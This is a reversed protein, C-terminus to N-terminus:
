EILPDDDVDEAGDVAEKQESREIGYRNKMIEFAAREAEAQAAGGDDLLFTRVFNIIASWHESEYWVRYLDRIPPDNHMEALLRRVARGSCEGRRLKDLSDFLLAFGPFFCGGIERRVRRTPEWDVNRLKRYTLLALSVRMKQFDSEERDYSQDRWFRDGRWDDLCEPKAPDYYSFFEALLEAGAQLDGDDSGDLRAAPDFGGGATSSLAKRSDPSASSASVTSSALAKSSAGNAHLRQKSSCPTTPGVKGQSKSAKDYGQREDDGLVSNVYDYWGDKSRDARELSKQAPRVKMRRKEVRFNWGLYDFGDACDYATGHTQFGLAALQGTTEKLVQEAQSRSECLFLLDDIYRWYAPALSTVTRDFPTLCHNFLLASSFYGTSMGVSFIKQLFIRPQRGIDLRSVTRAILAGTVTPYARAIDLVVAWAPQTGASVARIERVVAKQGKGRRCSCVPLLLDNLADLRAACAADGVRDKLNLVSYTRKKGHKDRGEFTCPQEPVYDPNNLDLRTRLLFQGVQDPRVDRVSLGDPGKRRGLKSRTVYDFDTALGSKTFSDNVHSDNGATGHDKYPTHGGVPNIESKVISSDVPLNKSTDV